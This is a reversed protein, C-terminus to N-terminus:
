TLFEGGDLSGRSSHCSCSKVLGLAGKTHLTWRSLGESSTALALHLLGHGTFLHTIESFLSCILFHGFLSLFSKVEILLFFCRELTAEHVDLDENERRNEDIQAVPEVRGHDVSQFFTM